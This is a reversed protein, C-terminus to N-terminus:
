FGKGLLQCIVILAKCCDVIFVAPMLMLCGVVSVQCDVVSLLLHCYCEVNMLRCVVGMM